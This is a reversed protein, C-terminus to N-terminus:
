AFDSPEPASRKNRLAITMAITVALNVALAYLAEYASIDVGLIAVTFIATSLDSFFMITGTLMGALWGMLLARRDLWDTYLGLIVAPLTQLIWVGGLLQLDLTQATDIFVVFVLAGAKVVLSVLRAMRAEQYDSAAPRLYEKYISRTFLNAAAISMIAVPMIAGIAIAAFAFGTMGAPLKDLLLDPVVYNDGKPLTLGEAIAMFGILAVLGLLLSYLPLAIAVRRVVDPSKASLVGTIM